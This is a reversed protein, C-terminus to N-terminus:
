AAENNAREAEQQARLWMSGTGILGALLLLVFVAGSVFAAKHKRITKRLRYGTSPPRAEVADGHLYNQVDDALSGAGDYRRNRDKELAKLAIWDLERKLIGRLRNPEIRRQESIGSIADGSDSM